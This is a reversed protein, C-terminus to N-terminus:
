EQGRLRVALIWKLVPHPEVSVDLLRKNKIALRWVKYDDHQAPSINEFFENILIFDFNEVQNSSFFLTNEEYDNSFPHFVLLSDEKAIIEGSEELAERNEEKWDALFQIFKETHLVKLDQIEEEIQPHVKDTDSSGCATLLLGSLIYFIGKKWWHM